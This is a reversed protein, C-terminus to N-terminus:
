KKRYKLGWSIDIHGQNFVFESILLYKGENDTGIEYEFVTDSCKIDGNNSSNVVNTFYVKKGSTSFNGKAQSLSGDSRLHDFSGDKYFNYYCNKNYPTGARSYTWYGIIEKDIKGDGGGDDDDGNKKDCAAFMTTVALCAVITAVKRMQFRFNTM